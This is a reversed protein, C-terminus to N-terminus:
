GNIGRSWVYKSEKFKGTHQAEFTDDKHIWGRERSHRYVQGHSFASRCGKPLDTQTGFVYITYETIGETVLAKEAVELAERLTSFKRAKARPSEIESWEQDLLEWDVISAEGTKAMEHVLDEQKKKLVKWKRQDKLGDPTIFLEPFHTVKDTKVVGPGDGVEICATFYNVPRDPMYSHHYELHVPGFGQFPANKSSNGNQSKAPSAKELCVKHWAVPDRGPRYEYSGCRGYGDYVGVSGDFNAIEDAIIEEGCGKCIWSFNGM